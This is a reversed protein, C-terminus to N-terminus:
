RDKLIRIAFVVNQLFVHAFYHLADQFSVFRRPTRIARRASTLEVNCFKDAFLVLLKRLSGIANM